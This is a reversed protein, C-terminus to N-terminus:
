RGTGGEIRQDRTLLIARFPEYISDFVIVRSGAACRQGANSFASLLVWKAANELDADDCVMLPNKGGLELSVKALRRGAIAAIERGVATSGTFSISIWTLTPLSRRVRRKATGRFSTSYGPRCGPKRPSRVSFGHPPRRTRPRRSCRRTAASSPRFCRGRWTPSPPIQLLSSGQSVRGASSHDHCSTQSQARRPGDTSVVARGQWSNGRLSPAMPRGWPQRSPCAPKLPCSGAIEEKHRRIARTIEYLIEGRRVPSLGAWAPQAERAVRVARDIDESGSRVAVCLAAGSVPSLKTFTEGKAGEEQAGGIWNLIKEPIPYQIRAM